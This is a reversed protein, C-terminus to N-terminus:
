LGMSIAVIEAIDLDKLTEGMGKSGIADELMQVCYPCATAVIEAGTEKVHEIRVESIRTGKTEEIWFRGGGGGCCFSDDGHHEMEVLNVQPIAKIIDRPPQYIDNYRGLYCPDHYTIKKDLGSKLQIKGEQLLRIIFQSHHIVEFKGGFQPYENKLINFGHPCVTVITKVGYNNLLEINKVAQMQFQYENGLRRSPDGCCTEEAGLTAFNVGAANLIKAFAQAIKISRDELAAQCGVWFLLDADSNDSLHKINLGEEWETRSHVTGIVVHGRAEISNLVPEVLEPVKAQELILNRRMDVIKQPHEIYVPCIDLCAGCTTCAWIAEEPIVEGILSCSTSNEGSADDSLLLSTEPPRILFPYASVELLHGKLSQIMKKPSLPQGSIYAPCVEQCRGCRTCAEVDLLQKWTFNGIEGVGFFEAEELNIPTLAGKPERSRFFANMTDTIIHNLRSYFLSIYIVAGVTFLVHFYWLIRHWTLLTGLSVGSLANTIFLGGPSWISWAAEQAGPAIAALRFAEVFFGSIVVGLILISTIADDRSRDLREHFAGPSQAYRRVMFIVIAIIFLLGGLDSFLSHALGVNGVLFHFWYHSLFDLLAGLLLFVSGWFIFLHPIGPYLQRLIRRHIFGDVIGLKIFTGIRRWFPHLRDEPQGRRWVLWFRAVIAYLFIVAAIIGLTYVIWPGEPINWFVERVEEM